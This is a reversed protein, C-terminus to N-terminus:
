KKYGFIAFYVHKIM